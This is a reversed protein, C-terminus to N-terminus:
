LIDKKKIVESKLFKKIKVLDSKDKNDYIILIKFNKYSQKFISKLAYFLYDLNEKYPIIITVNPLKNMFILEFDLTNKLEIQIIM